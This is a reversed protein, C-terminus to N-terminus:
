ALMMKKHSLERSFPNLIFGPVELTIAGLLAEDNGKGLIVPSTGRIGQIEFVTESIKRKIITGDALTFNLERVPKIRLKKWVPEPLLTVTAGSDVLFDVDIAKKGKGVKATISILGM